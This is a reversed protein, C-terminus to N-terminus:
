DLSAIERMLRKESVKGATGLQQAFVSVKFEELLWRIKKVSIPEDAAPAGVKEWLADEVRYFAEIPASEEDVWVGDVISAKDLRHQAAKLYRPIHKIRLAGHRTVFGPSTLWEVQEQVEMPVGEGNPLSALINLRALVARAALLAISRERAGVKDGISDLLKIFETFTWVPGGSLVVLDRIACTHCDDRLGAEGGPYGRLALKTPQSIGNFLQRRPGPLKEEILNIVASLQHKYAEIKTTYVDVFWGDDSKNLAPFGIVNRSEVQQPISELESNWESFIKKSSSKFTDKVASESEKFRRRLLAQFDRDSDIINGRHDQATFRFRLHDPLATDAFANDPLSVGPLENLSQKLYEFFDSQPNDPLNETIKQATDPLPILQKRYNKPLSRLATLVLENRMGPVLWSFHKSNVQPLEAVPIVVSIGDDPSGPMFSYSLKFGDLSDPYFKSNEGASSANRISKEPLVLSSRTAASQKKWWQAFDGASLINQPILADYLDALSEEDIVLGRQRAKDEFTVLRDITKQNEEIFSYHHKWDNGVLANILFMRRAEVPEVKRYSVIRDSVLPVGWLSTSEYALAEGRTSSWHPEAYRRSLAPGAAREVWEPDVAALTRGWVRSTEVIEYAVLMGTSRTIGSGPFIAFKKGRTGQYERSEGIRMGINSLLGSLLAQHVRDEDVGGTTAHPTWKWGMQRCIDSLQSVLDKWEWYRLWHLFEGKCLKRFQSRSLERSTDSLYNWVQLLSLFDSTPNNFRKHLADAAKEQDTPRERVDRISLGAVIVLVDGLVSKRDAEILMRSLRPDVPIRAMMRGTRTLGMDKRLAGLERLVQIGDKISSFDPPDLFPFAEVSGFGLDAMQLIVSALNTRLIEPETYLPRAEYNEESYLRIAIGDSLRGCRGSRQKASAQSVEEIPLRQIKTRNSYRSIRATGTDIVYRIGPVTLSTEAVNTALIIRQTNHPSFVRHQESSSLRGYLPLVELSSLRAKRIADGAERIEREGPFFALIDGGDVHSETYLETVAELFTDLPDQDEEGPRYRVEVPYTRGSVEVIPAPRGDLAFHQAFRNTEITASTIIVHLDPREPLIRKLYGLLFDINLSREHAEDIIITDYNRLLRDHRIEALLIGDTMVKIATNESVKDTFRVTYGVLDAIDSGLEDAIREAVSRAAIRRPQTHGILGKQGLGLELCLKPLQTTKGSGTEGAVIIVQNHLLKERIDAIRQSIPLEDPYSIAPISEQRIQLRLEATEVDELISLCESVTRARNIRGRLQDADRLMVHELRKFLERRLRRVESSIPARKTRRTKEAM